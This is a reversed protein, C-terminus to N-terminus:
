LRLSLGNRESKLAKSEFLKLDNNPDTLEEDDSIELNNEEVPAEENTVQNKPAKVSNVPLSKFRNDVLVQIKSKLFFLNEIAHSDRKFHRVNLGKAEINTFSGLFGLLSSSRNEQCEPNGSWYEKM